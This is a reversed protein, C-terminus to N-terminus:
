RQFSIKRRKETSGLTGKLTLSPKGVITRLKNEKRLQESAESMGAKAMDTRHVAAQYRPSGKPVRAM